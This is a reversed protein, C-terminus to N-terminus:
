RAPLTFNDMEFETANHQRSGIATAVSANPECEVDEKSPGVSSPKRCLRTTYRHDGLVALTTEMQLITMRHKTHIGHSDTM